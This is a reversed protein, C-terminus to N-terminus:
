NVFFTSGGNKLIIAFESGKGIELSATTKLYM